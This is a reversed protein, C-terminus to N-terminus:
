RRRPGAGAGATHLAPEVEARFAPSCDQGTQNAEERGLGHAEVSGSRPWASRGGETVARAAPALCSAHLVPTRAAALPRDTAPGPVSRLPSPIAPVQIDPAPASEPVSVPETIPQTPHIQRMLWDEWHGGDTEREFRETSVRHECAAYRGNPRQAPSPHEAFCFEANAYSLACGFCPRRDGQVRGM